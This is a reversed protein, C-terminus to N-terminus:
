ENAIWVGPFRMEMRIKDDFITIIQIDNASRMINYMPDHKEFECMDFECGIIIEQTQYDFDVDVGYSENCGPIQNPQLFCDIVDCIEQFMINSARDIHYQGALKITAQKIIVSAVDYCKVM